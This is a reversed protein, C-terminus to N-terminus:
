DQGKLIVEIASNYEKKNKLYAEAAENFFSVLKRDELDLSSKLNRHLEPTLRIQVQKTRDSM